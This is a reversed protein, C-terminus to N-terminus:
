IITYYYVVDRLGRGPGARSFVHAAEHAPRGIYLGCSM